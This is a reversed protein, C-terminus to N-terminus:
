TADFDIALLLDYEEGIIFNEFAPLYVIVVKTPDALFTIVTFTLLYTSKQGVERSIPLPKLV